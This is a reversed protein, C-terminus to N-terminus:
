KELPKFTILTDTEYHGSQCDHLAQNYGQDYGKKHGVHDGVFCCPISGIFAALAIFLTTQNKM